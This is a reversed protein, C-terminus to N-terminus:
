VKMEIRGVCALYFIDRERNKGGTLDLNIMGESWYRVAWQLDFCALKNLNLVGSLAQDWTVCLLDLICYFSTHVTLEITNSNVKIPCLMANVDNVIENSIWCVFEMIFCPKDPVQGNWSGWCINKQLIDRYYIIALPIIRTFFIDLYGLLKM